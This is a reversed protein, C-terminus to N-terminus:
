AIASVRKRARQQELIFRQILAVSKANMNLFEFGYRRASQGDALVRVTESRVQVIAEIRGIGPFEIGCMTRTGLELAPADAPTAAALGGISLDLVSPRLVTGQCPMECKLLVHVPEGPLRYYMRRQLRLVRPPVATAFAEAGEHSTLEGRPCNFQVPVGQDSTVFTIQEADMVRANLEDDRSKEFVLTPTKGRVGLLTTPYCTEGDLYAAARSGAEAIAELVSVVGPTTDIYCEEADAPAALLTLQPQM